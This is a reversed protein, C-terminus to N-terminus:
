KTKNRLVFSLLKGADGPIAEPKKKPYAKAMAIKFAERDQSIRSLDGMVSWGVGIVNMELFISRADGTKGAHIGWITESNM